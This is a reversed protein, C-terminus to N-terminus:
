FFIPLILQHHKNGLSIAKAIRFTADYSLFRTGKKLLKKKHRSVIPLCVKIFFECFRRSITTYSPLVYQLIKKVTETIGNTHFVKSLDQLQADQIKKHYHHVWNENLHDLSPQIKKNIVFSSWIRAWASKRWRYKGIKIIGDNNQM